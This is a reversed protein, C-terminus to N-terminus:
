FNTYYNEYLYSVFSDSFMSIAFFTILFLGSSISIAASNMSAPILQTNINHNRQKEFEYVKIGNEFIDWQSIKHKNWLHKEFDGFAIRSSCHLCKLPRYKCQPIHAKAEAGTFLANCGDSRYKCRMTSKNVFDEAFFNRGFGIGKQCLPCKKSVLKPCCNACIIHGQYCTLIPPLPLDFCVPCELLPLLEEQSPSQTVELGRLDDDLDSDDEDSSPYYGRDM